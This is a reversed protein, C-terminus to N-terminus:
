PKLPDTKTITFTSELKRSGAQTPPFKFFDPDPAFEFDSFPDSSQLGEGLGELFGEIAQSSIYPGAELGVQRSAERVKSGMSIAMGQSRGVVSSLDAANRGPVPDKGKMKNLAENM